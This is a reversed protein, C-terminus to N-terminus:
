IGITKQSFEKKAIWSLEQRSIYITGDSDPLIGKNDHYAFILTSGFAAFLYKFYLKKVKTTLLDM